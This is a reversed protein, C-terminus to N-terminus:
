DKRNTMPVEKLEPMPKSEPRENDPHPIYPPRELLAPRHIVPHEKHAPRHTPGVKKTPPRHTAPVEKLPGMSRKPPHPKLPPMPKFQIDKSEPMKHKTLYKHVGGALVDEAEQELSAFGEPLLGEAYKCIDLAEQATFGEAVAAKLFGCRVSDQSLKTLM